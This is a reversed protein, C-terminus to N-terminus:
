GGRIATLFHVESSPMVVELLGFPTIEGDIAVSVSPRLRGNEILRDQVGPYWAELNAIIDSITAGEV